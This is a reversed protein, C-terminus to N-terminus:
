WRAVPGCELGPSAGDLACYFVRMSSQQVTFAKKRRPFAQPAVSFSEDPRPQPVHPARVTEDVHSPVIQLV